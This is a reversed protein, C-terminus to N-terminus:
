TVLHLQHSLLRAQANGKRRIRSNEWDTVLRTFMVQLVARLCAARGRPLIPDFDPGTYRSQRKVWRRDQM